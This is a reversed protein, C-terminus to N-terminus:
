IRLTPVNRTLVTPAFPNLSLQRPAAILLLDSNTTEPFLAPDLSYCADPRMRTRARLLNAAQLVDKCPPASQLPVGKKRRGHLNLTRPIPAEAKAVSAKACDHAEHAFVLPHLIRPPSRFCAHAFENCSFNHLLTWTATFVDDFITPTIVHRASACM